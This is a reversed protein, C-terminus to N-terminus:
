IITCCNSNDNNNDNNNNTNNNPDIPFLGYSYRGLNQMHSTQLEENSPIKKDEAAQLICPTTIDTNQQCQELRAAMVDLHMSQGIQIIPQNEKDLYCLMVAFPSPLQEKLLNIKPKLSTNKYHEMLSNTFGYAKVKHQMNNNEIIIVEELDPNNISQKLNDINPFSTCFIGLDNNKFRLFVLFSAHIDQAYVIQGSNAKLIHFQFSKICISNDRADAALAIASAHQVGPRLPASAIIDGSENRSILPM